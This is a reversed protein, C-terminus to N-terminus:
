RWGGGLAKYLNIFAALNNKRIEALQLKAQLLNQQAFLVELYTARNSRFLLSSIEVSQELAYVEATKLEFMKQFNNIRLLQNYVEVYGNVITKQYNYMAELQLANARSFEAEIATRNILPATINGLINYTVSSANLLLNPKFAQLGMGAVINFSPYFAAKASQVDAKAAVVEWEAQRIDPRNQLLQSPIGAKVQMVPLMAFVATDRLVPQPYRGALANIINETFAIQQVTELRLSRLNLLQSEFQKVGLETAVAAEKQVKILSLANEQLAITTDIIKLSQDYWQLDYYASALDAVLNTLVVHRAQQTALFRALAAKNKNKLRNWVDVEWTTQLGVFFDALHIPITTGNYIDTGKNGAADPTFEGYKTIGPTVATNVYPKLAGRTMLVDSQAQKIRQLAIHVDWNNALATDLLNVLYKDSFFHKPTFLAVNTTDNGPTSTYQQPMPLLAKQQAERPVKCSCLLLTIIFSLHIFYKLSQM